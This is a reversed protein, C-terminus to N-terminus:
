SSSGYEVYSRKSNAVFVFINGNRPSKESNSNHQQSDVFSQMAKKIVGINKLLHLITM